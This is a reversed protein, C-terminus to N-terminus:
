QLNTSIRETIAQPDGDMSQAIWATDNDGPMVETIHILDGKNLTKRHYAM